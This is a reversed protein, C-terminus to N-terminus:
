QAFFFAEGFEDAAHGAAATKGRECIKRISAPARGPPERASAPSPLLLLNMRAENFCAAITGM